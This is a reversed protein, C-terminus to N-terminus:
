DFEKKIKKKKNINENKKSKDKLSIDNKQEEKISKSIKLYM